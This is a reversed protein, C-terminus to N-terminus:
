THGHHGGDRALHARLYAVPCMPRHDIPLHRGHEHRGARLRAESTPAPNAETQAPSRQVHRACSRGAGLDIPHIGKGALISAAVGPSTGLMAAIDRKGILRDTM